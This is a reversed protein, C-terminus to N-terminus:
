GFIFTPYNVILALILLHLPYFVYFFYKISRGKEGNYGKILPITAFIGVPFLMSAIYPLVSIESGPPLNRIISGFSMFYVLGLICGVIVIPFVIHKPNKMNGIHFLLVMIVGIGSWDFRVTGIVIFVFFIWFFWRKKLWDYLYLAILGALLTFMINVNNSSLAWMFPLQSVIGFILLRIMYRPLNSTHRYGETLLFALIPFTLGGSIQLPIHLWDTLSNGFAESTHQLSMGIIAIIKLTCADFKKQMKIVKDLDYLSGVLRWFLPKKTGM